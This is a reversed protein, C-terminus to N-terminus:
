SFRVFAVLGERTPELATAYAKFDAWPHIKNVLRVLHIHAKRELLHLTM